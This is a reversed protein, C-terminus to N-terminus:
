NKHEPQLVVCDLGWAYRYGESQDNTGVVELRLTVTGKQLDVTGLNVPTVIPQSGTLCLDIPKGLSKGDLYFQVIGFDYAKTLYVILHQPGDAQVPVEVDIWEGAQKPFGFLQKDNSWIDLGFVRMDQITTRCKTSRAVIRLDEGETAGAVRRVPVKLEALLEHFDARERLPDFGDDTRLARANQFGRVFAQRLLQVAKIAYEEAVADKSDVNAAALTYVRAADYITHASADIAEALSKAEFAARSHEKMRALTFARRILYEHRPRGDDIELAREWLQLEERHRRLRGLTFGLRDRAIRLFKQATVHRPEKARTAELTAIAATLFELAVESRGLDDLIIGLNCQTGGLDIAFETISPHKAVLEKRLLLAQQYAAEAEELRHSSYFSTGLNNYTGALGVKYHLVEVHDQVLGERLARAEQHAQEAERFRGSDQYLIGLNNLSSALDDRYDAVKPHDRVLARRLPLGQQYIEEAERLRNTEQYLVGLNSLSRALAAQYAAVDPHDRVLVKLTALAEQYAREAEELRGTYRYMVGAADISMALQAHYDPVDPHDRVLDTFIAVAQTYSGIAEEKTAVEQTLRGLRRFARGREAQFDPEDGRLEVFKQYFLLEAQLVERRLDELPGSKLRPNEAIKTVCEELGERALRYSTEARERHEDARQRQEQAQLANAEARRWQWTVGALGSLLVLLLAAFLGAVVPNRRCWQWTQELVTSRRARIPRDALFRSLDEALAEATSYRQNSEKAMAKQIITDLDRPIRPDIKRPTLPREHQVREMLRTRDSDDFAPRLTLLEYLTLGLSYVDSRPDSRGQFREPAMYRLTGVIDGPQTLEDGGEAKALGFDTVWVAGAIDQLLNSPKIDRHLVGQRHAYGLAEAVQVGVEAVSRFYQAHSHSSLGSETASTAQKPTPHSENTARVPDSPSGASTSRPFQRSLLGEAVHAALGHAATVPSDGAARIRKVERLVEDLGRGGIYQMAYYHVGQDEGVGFVPVIHTHHLRAAARAERRFRELHTPSLLAAFPLVKLAVHRQLSEQVAEYVIGMGGRGVERLIRYEGLQRLVPGAGPHPMRQDSPGLVPVVCQTSRPVSALGSEKAAPSAHASPRERRASPPKIASALWGADLEPFRARYAESAPNEGCRQRYRVDLLVLERLLAAREPGPFAALADEISPWSGGALASKCAAEFPTCIQDIREDLSLLEQETGPTQSM